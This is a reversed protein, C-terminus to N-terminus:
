RYQRRLSQRRMNQNSAAAANQLCDPADTENLLPHSEDDDEDKENEEPDLSPQAELDSFM